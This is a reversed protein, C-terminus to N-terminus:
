AAQGRKDETALGRKVLIRMAEALAPIEDQARRWRDIEAVEPGDFWAQIAKKERQSM